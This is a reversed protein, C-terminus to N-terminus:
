IIFCVFFVWISFLTSCRIKTFLFYGLFYWRFAPGFVAGALSCRLYWGTHPRHARSTCRLSGKGPAVRM